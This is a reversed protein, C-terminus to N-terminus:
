KRDLAIQLANAIATATAEVLRQRWIEPLTRPIFRRAPISHKKSGNQQIGTYPVNTTVSFGNPKIDWEQHESPSTYEGTKSVSGPSLSNILVGTDVLIEHEDDGYLDVKSKGTERTAKTEAQRRAATKAEQDGLSISYRKYFQRYYKDTLKKRLKTEANKNHHKPGKRRGAVTSAALPPWEVGDEGRGHRAKRIFDAKVDSLIQIGMSMLIGRVLDQNKSTKGTMADKLQRILDVCQQRPGRFFINTTM